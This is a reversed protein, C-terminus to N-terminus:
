SRQRLHELPHHCINERDPEKEIFTSIDPQQSIASIVMDIDLVPKQDRSPYRAGADAPMPNVWNWRSTNWGRSKAPMM